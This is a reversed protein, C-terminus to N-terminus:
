SYLSVLKKLTEGVYVIQDNTLEPFIPLSLLEDAQACAVPYDRAKSKLHSFVPMLPLPTPYHIGTSIGREKLKQIIQGRNKIRVVFLHFVSSTGEPIKPLILPTDKLIEAYLQANERRQENWSELYQLKTQLIAAQISDMRSNRGLLLHQDRAQQGHNAIMRCIEAIDKHPSIIAGADGYAGLNKTPYFSFAAADGMSGAKKGHYTAGHAHACDEIVKLGNTRAIQLIADMDAPLGYLHILVIAKTRNSIKDHIFQPDINYYDPHNDIFVPKGGVLCVAEAASLWGNAPVLVEDGKGIHMSRLIIELADTCNGCAICHAANLYQAFKEEFQCITHDYAFSSKSFVLRVAQDIDKQIGVYQKKLDVFPVQM